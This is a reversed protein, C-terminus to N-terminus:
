DQGCVVYRCAQAIEAESWLYITSGHRSWPHLAMDITGAERMHRTAWSKMSNMVLEPACAASVVVHVHNSRVGVAHLGWGRHTCVERVADEVLPRNEITLRFPAHAMQTREWRQRAASPPACQQNWQNMARRYVSGREDGHLWTGYCRFTILYGAAGVPNFAQPTM